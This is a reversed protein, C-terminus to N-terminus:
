KKGFFSMMSRQGAPAKKTVAKPQPKAASQTPKKVMLKKVPKAPSSEDDTVWEEVYNTVMYGDANVEMKEVMKRKKRKTTTPLGAEQNRIREDEMFDDMAGHVQFTAKTPSDVGTANAGTAAEDEDDQAMLEQMEQESVGGSGRPANSSGKRESLKSKDVAIGDDWEDDSNVDMASNEKEDEGVQKPPLAPLTRDDEWAPKAKTKKSASPVGAKDTSKGFFSAVAATNKKITKSAPKKASATAISQKAALGKAAASVTLTPRKPAARVKLGDGCSIPGCFSVVDTRGEEKALDSSKMMNLFRNIDESAAVAKFDGDGGKQVSYVQSNDASIDNTLTFSLGTDTVECKVSTVELSSQDKQLETLFARSAQPSLNDIQQVGRYTISKGADIFARIEESM